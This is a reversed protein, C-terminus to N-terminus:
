FFLKAASFVVDDPTIGIIGQGMLRATAMLSAHVHKVGKPEGTSGSSYLWFAVEDSITAATFPEEPQGALLDEFRHVDRAAPTEAAADAGGAGVGIVRRLHG